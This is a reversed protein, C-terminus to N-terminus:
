ECFEQKHQKALQDARKAEGAKFTEFDAMFKDLESQTYREVPSGLPPPNIEDNTM